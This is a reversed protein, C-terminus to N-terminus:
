TYLTEDKTKFCICRAHVLMNIVVTITELRSQDKQLLMDRLNLAVCHLIHLIFTNSFICKENSCSNMLTGVRHCNRELTEWTVM